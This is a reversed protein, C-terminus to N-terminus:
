AHRILAISCPATGLAVLPLLTSALALAIPAASADIVGASRLLDLCLAAFLFWGLVAIAVQRRTLIGVALTKRLVVLAAAPLAVTFAWLHLDIVIAGIWGRAVAALVGGVYLLVGVAGFWMRRGFATAVARLAALLAILTALAVFSVITSSLLRLGYKQMAQAVRTGPSASLHLDALLPLSLWFSAAVLASAAFICLSTVLVQLGILKATGIPRAAEFASLNAAPSNRRSWISAGVGTVFPAAMACAALVVPIESRIANGWYLLLPVCAAILVGIVLVPIGYYQSEFWIEAATASSVPCRWRLVELCTSRISEFIDGVQGPPQDSPRDPGSSEDEGHRQRDVAFVIWLYLAAVFLMVIFYGRASLVFLEPSARVGKAAFPNGAYKFPELLRVMMGAIVYAAFALGTRSAADRLTWSSAAVLVALAGVFTAAPLLPLPAHFAVRLFAAPVLYCAAAASFVYCVPVAVLLRTSIPRAFAKSLPFGPRVGFSPLSLAMAIAATFLVVFAVFSGANSAWLWGCFTALSPVLILRWRTLRWSEWLTALAATRM